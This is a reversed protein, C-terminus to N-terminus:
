PSSAFKEPALWLSFLGPLIGDLIGVFREMSGFPARHIM